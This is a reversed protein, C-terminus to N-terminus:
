FLYQLRLAATFGDDEGRIDRETEAFILNASVRFQRYYWNGGATFLVLENASNVDDKGRTYSM